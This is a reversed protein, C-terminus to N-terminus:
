PRRVLIAIIVLLLMIVIIWPWKQTAASMAKPANSGAGKQAATPREYAAPTTSAAVVITSAVDPAATVPTGCRGCRHANTPVATDCSRCKEMIVRTTLSESLGPQQDAAKTAIRSGAKVVQESIQTSLNSSIEELSEGKREESIFSDQLGEDSSRNATADGRRTV